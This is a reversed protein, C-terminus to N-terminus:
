AIGMAARLRTAAVPPKGPRRGTVGRIRWKPRSVGKTNRIDPNRTSGAQILFTELERIYRRNLKGKALPHVVLFLVPRRRPADHMARCYKRLNSPNFVERSFGRRTLGVYAPMVGGKAGQMGFIYAGSKDALETLGPLGRWFEERDLQAKSRNCRLLIAFPGHVIFEFMTM